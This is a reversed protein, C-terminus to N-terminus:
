NLYIRKIALKVSNVRETDKFLADLSVGFFKSILLSREMNPLNYELEWQQIQERSFTVKQKQKKSYENLSAALDYQTLEYKDRLSKIKEGFKM